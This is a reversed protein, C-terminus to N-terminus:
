RTGVTEGAEIQIAYALQSTVGAGFFAGEIPMTGGQAYSAALAVHTDSVALGEVPDWGRWGGGPIFVEAWAHLHRDPRSLDGRRYGSVFRAALGVTRCAEMFLVALDRCAGQKTQLTVPAPQAAGEERIERHITEHIARNLADLFGQPSGSTGAAVAGAFSSVTEDVEAVQRYPALLPGVAAPYRAPLADFGLNPVYDFPNERLTEVEFESVIRLRDTSGFFWAHTVVNGEADLTESLLSPEPTITLLYRRLRQAGDDRPRLRVIHPGLTVPASYTYTTEHRVNFHM